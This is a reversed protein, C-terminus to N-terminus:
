LPNAQPLYTAELNFYRALHEGLAQIGFVESAYHGAYGVYCGLDQSLGFDSERGEGTLFIDAEAESLFRSGAGTCWAISSIIQPGESELWNIPQSWRESLLAKFAPWSGPPLHTTRYVIGRPAISAVPEGSLGLWRGFLVNNGLAPHIDLPLHYAILHMGSALIPNLRQGFVHDIRDIPHPILGHHVLLVDAQWEQALRITEGTVASQALM